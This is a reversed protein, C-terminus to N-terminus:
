AQAAITGTWVGCRWIRSYRSVFGVGAMSYLVDNNGVRHGIDIHAFGQPGMFGQRSGWSGKEGFCRDLCGLGSVGFSSM